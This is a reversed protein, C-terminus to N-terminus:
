GAPSTTQRVQFRHFPILRLPRLEDCLRFVSPVCRDGRYIWRASQDSRQSQRRPLKVRVGSTRTSSGLPWNLFPRESRSFIKWCVLSCALKPSANTFALDANSAFAFVVSVMAGHILGSSSGVSNASAAATNPAACSSSWDSAASAFDAAIRTPITAVIPTSSRPSAFRDTALAAFRCCNRSM